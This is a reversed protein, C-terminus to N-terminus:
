NKILVKIWLFSRIFKFVAFMKPHNRFIELFYLSHLVCKQTKTLVKDILVEHHIGFYRSKHSECSSQITKVKNVYSPCLNFFSSFKSGEYSSEKYCSVSLKLFLKINERTLPM